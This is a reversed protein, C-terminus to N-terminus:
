GFSRPRPSAPASPTERSSGSSTTTSAPGRSPSTTEESKLMARGIKSNYRQLCTCWVYFLNYVMCLLSFSAKSSLRVRCISACFPSPGSKLRSSQNFARTGIKPGSVGRASGHGPRHYKPKGQKNEVHTGRAETQRYMLLWKYAYITSSRHMPSGWSSKRRQSDEPGCGLNGMEMRRLPSM